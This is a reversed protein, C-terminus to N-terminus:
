FAGLQKLVSLVTPRKVAFVWQPDIALGRIVKSAFRGDKLPVKTFKANRGRSYIELQQSMADVIWYERVGASEYEVFKIRYDRSPDDPSVIEVILDPPGEFHNRQFLHTRSKAVFLLDPMRRRPRDPFLRIMYEPGVVTGLDGIEAYGHLLSSLWTQISAHSINIPSMYEIEGEVWEVRLHEESIAWAVFAKESMRRPPDISGASRRVRPGSQLAVSAM